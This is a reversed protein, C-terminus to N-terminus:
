NPKRLNRYILFSIVFALIVVIIAIIPIAIPSTLVDSTSDTPTSDTPLPTPKILNVDAQWLPYHDINNEDIVYPTNGIGSSDIEAASPYKSQYDSWYNGVTGNDWHNIPAGPAIWVNQTNNIFNNRCLTNNYVNNWIISNVQAGLCIGLANDEFLNEFIVNNYSDRSIYLAGSRNDTKAM